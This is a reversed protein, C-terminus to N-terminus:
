SGLVTNHTACCCQAMNFIPQIFPSFKNFYLLQEVKHLKSVINVERYVFLMVIRLM